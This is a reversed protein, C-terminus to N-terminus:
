IISSFPSFSLASSSGCLLLTGSEMRNRLIVRDFLLSQASAQLNYEDMNVCKSRAKESEIDHKEFNRIYKRIDQQVDSTESTKGAFSFQFKWGKEATASNPSVTNVSQEQSGSSAALGAADLGNVFQSQIDLEQKTTFSRKACTTASASSCAQPLNASDNGPTTIFDLPPDEPSSFDSSDFTSLSVCEDFYAMAEEELRKSMKRREISSKRGPRPKQVNPTKPEPLIEKLIRSLEQGRHEEIALDAQLKRARELSQELKKVYQTRIDLVLEVAGPNVLDSPVDSVDTTAVSSANSRRIAIELDNQIESIARRVESRVTEYIGSATADGEVNDRQDLKIQECVARVTKQEAGLSSTTSVGDECSRTKEPCSLNTAFGDSHESGSHHGSLIGSSSRVKGGKKGNSSVSNWNSGKKLDKWSGCEQEAESESTVCRQRSLSRNRRGADVWSGKTVSRGRRDDVAGKTETRAKAAPADSKPPSGSGSWFLPNDRKNLFESIDDDSNGTATRRSFASVSRSRRIPAPKKQTNDKDTSEKGASHSTAPLNSRRSSSKFAAVAM